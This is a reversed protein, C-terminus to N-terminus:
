AVAKLKLGEAEALKAHDECLVARCTFSSGTVEYETARAGCKQKGMRRRVPKTCTLRPPAPPLLELKTM